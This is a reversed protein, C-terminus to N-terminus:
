EDIAQDLLRALHMARRPTGDAIQHRCSTGNAVVLAAEPAAALAPFLDLNAIRYSVDITDPAYGFAGAMGCCSSEILTVESQPIRNLLDLLPTVADHAKQHCHGHVYIPKNLPKLPLDPRQVLFEEFTLASQALAEAEPGPCLGLSEDRFTLISSPELGILPIGKAVAVKTTDIVRAVEARAEEVCGVALLTRGCELARGSDDQAVAVRLGAARLVRVAARLNEPEFYRNFIDAFLLVDPNADRAEDDRFPNSSWEPLDRRHSIGTLAETLKRVPGIRNRLNILWAFKAATAAYRPLYGVMKDALTMGRDKRRAALVEIKMRAMDVGTPCERRCGKCSVCYKLTDAMADSALGGPMQGSIAFRLTNARGRTADRENRTARFSPCMVGGKLKRCAGNNNCMEVAGQFGGGAGPWASWDLVTKFDPVAYDPGYRFVRRDDMAPAQVIKGPNMLGNPDFRTKVEEFASVIRAGFMKEHFESRAIGDGHEGSHSGKYRKVLDFCEEAIARMSKVDKDQRMNLVPRVHLCGVSAHAYWTGKTGHRAFIETVGQTYDALDPLAVACDEVFSIPKGAEKMSMMVNLGAKRYEAIANQLAADTVPVVGGWRDGAGSFAFGHDGMMQALEALKAANAEASGNAFEVLLLAAPDGEVFAEITKRFLPIERGLAIMTDDILEVAQPTLTVLHQAAEMAAYFTPFHCVGIVKEGPLHALSLELETFYALTGESGVLLHAMNVDAGTLADINYGGVRRQVAPFRAAIEDAERRGLARMDSVLDAYPGLAPDDRNFQAKTGDPLIASIARVNDRMIGYRLSKGGSSNNAAMGGLTCRSATSPDVPFWLGHPKLARNLEDLVLGPQVRATLSETDIDLIHNLHRTNDLVIARNVTQGCQSTGGGRPLIPTGEEGAITMTAEIDGVSRPVVVAEPVMQYISADTAYRARAAADAMVDGAVAARLRSSLRTNERM